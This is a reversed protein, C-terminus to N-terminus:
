TVNEGSIAENSVPLRREPYQKLITKLLSRDIKGMETLPIDMQVVAQIRQPGPATANWNLCAPILIATDPACAVLEEGTRPHPVSEVIAEPVARRLAEQVADPDILEGLIKVLRDARRLFTIKRGELHILDQTHWWNEEPVTELLFAGNSTTLLRGYLKGQGQFMARGQADTAVQWHPLITLRDTHYPDEPLATALQSGSETMGYSQVVPWGLARAREGTQQDLLGGGAIICKVTEPATIEANVLDIVQTPVLSSWYAGSSTMLDAYQQPNWKGELTYVTAGTIAARLHIMAGGVHWVPLPCCWDGSTAHLHEVAGQACIHLAHRTFLVAKPLSGSSGSTAFSILHGLGQAQFFEGARSAWQQLHPPAMVCPADNKEWPLTTGTASM